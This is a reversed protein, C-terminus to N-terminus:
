KTDPFPPFGQCNYSVVRVRPATRAATCAPGAAGAEGQSAGVAAGGSRAAVEGGGGGGGGGGSARGADAGEGTGRGVAVGSGQEGDRVGGGARPRARGMHDPLPVFSGRAPDWWALPPAEEGVIVGASGAGPGQPPVWPRHPVPRAAAASDRQWQWVRLAGEATQSGVRQPRPPPEPPLTAQRGAGGAEPGVSGPRTAKGSDAAAAGGGGCSVDEDSGGSGQGEGRVRSRANGHGVAAGTTIANVPQASASVLQGSANVPQGAANVWAGQGVPRHASARPQGRLPVAVQTGGRGRPGWGLVEPPQDPDPDSTCITAKPSPSPPSDNHPLSSVPEAAPAITAPQTATPPTRARATSHTPVSAAPLSAVHVLSPGAAAAPALSCSPPQPNPTAQRAPPSARRHAPGHLLPESAARTRTPARHTGLPPRRAPPVVPAPRAADPPLHHPPQPQPAQDLHQGQRHNHRHHHHHSHPPADPVAPLSADTVELTAQQPSQEVPPSRRPRKHPRDEAEEHAGVGHCFSVLPLRLRTYSRTFTSPCTPPWPISERLTTLQDCM